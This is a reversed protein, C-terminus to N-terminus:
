SARWLATQGGNITTIDTFGNGGDAVSKEGITLIELIQTARIYLKNNSIYAVEVGAQKFALKTSSFESAFPSGTKGITMMGAAIDFVFFANAKDTFNKLQGEVSIARAAEAAVADSVGTIAPNAGIVLQNGFQPSLHDTTISGAKIISADVSQAQLANTTVAGAAIENATVAASAIHATTIAGAVIADSTIAGAAIARAGVADVAIASASIAGAAINGAQVAGAAITNATVAGTTIKNSTVAGAAIKEATIANAALANTLITGPVIIDGDVVSANPITVAVGDRNVFLLCDDPGLTPFDNSVVLTNPYDLTWYAYKTNTYGNTVAYNQGRYQVNLGTWEIAGDVPSNNYVSYAM